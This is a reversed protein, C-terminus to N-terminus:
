TINGKVPIPIEDHDTIIEILSTERSDKISTFLEPFDNPSEIRYTKLGFTKGYHQFIVNKIDTSRYGNMVSQGIRVRGLSQHNFVVFAIPLKKEKALHMVNGNMLMCGDGTFALYYYSNDALAMGVANCIGTGMARLGVDLFLGGFHTPTYLAGVNALHNGADATIIVKSMNVKRLSNIVQAMYDYPLIKHQWYFASKLKTENIKKKIIESEENRRTNNILTKVFQKLNFTTFVKSKEYLEKNSPFENTIFFSDINLILKSILSDKIDKLGLSSGFAVISDPSYWSIFEDIIENNGYGLKGLYFPHNENICCYAKSTVLIPINRYKALEYLEKYSDSLWCGWGLIFIPRKSLEFEPLIVNHKCIQPVNPLLIDAKQIDVPVSIHVAGMRGEIAKFMTDRITSAASTVDDVCVSVKTINKLIDVSDFMRNINSEEQRVGKGNNEIPTRGSIYILPISDINASAIGSICNTVGPGGTTIVAVPKKSIKSYGTAVYSAEQEHSCLVLEIDSISQWIPMVLSGPIGFAKEVGLEKLCFNIYDCIKM